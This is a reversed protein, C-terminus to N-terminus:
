SVPVPIDLDKFVSAGLEEVDEDDSELMQAYTLNSSDM